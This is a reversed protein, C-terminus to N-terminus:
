KSKKLRIDPSVVAGRSSPNDLRSVRCERGLWAEEHWGIPDEKSLITGWAGADSSDRFM